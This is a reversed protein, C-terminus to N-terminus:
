TSRERGFGYWFMGWCIAEITAVGIKLGQPVMPNFSFFGEIPAAIFMLIVSTALLVVADKGAERLSEGRSRRGPNILSWGMLLGAAGSIILGSIEPVGHPAISSLLHDLKGVGAMESGLVGILAGNNFLLAATGLGFTSAAISATGIAAMPNNSAYFGTMGLNEGGTRMEFSGSKWSEFVERFGQPILVDRTDPVTNILIAAFFASGLFILVSALVFWARRRATQAALEVGHRLSEWISPRPQQYLVGYARSVLGNLYDILALNASRTRVVALDSSVSRYLRIFQRFEERSLLAPSSQAQETFAELRQWEAERGRVFAEENM